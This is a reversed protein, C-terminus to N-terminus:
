PSAYPKSCMSISRECMGLCSLLLIVLLKCGHKVYLEDNLVLLCIEFESM